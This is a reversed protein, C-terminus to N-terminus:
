TDTSYSMVIALVLYSWTALGNLRRHFENDILNIIIIYSCICTTKFLQWRVVHTTTDYRASHYRLTNMFRMYFWHTICLMNRNRLTLNKHGRGYITAVNSTLKLKVFKEEIVLCFKQWM